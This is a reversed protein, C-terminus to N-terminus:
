ESNDVPLAAQLVKRNAYYHASCLGRALAPKECDAQSCAVKTAKPPVFTADGYKWHRAAHASCYGNAHVAKDCGDISCAGRNALRADQTHSGHKRHWAQQCASNCFKATAIKDGLPSSCEQCIRDNSDLPDHGRREQWYHKTCFGKAYEERRCAPVACGNSPEFETECRPPLDICRRLYAALMELRQPDDNAFGIAKNCGSCVLGRIAGTHHNHDVVFLKIRGNRSDRESELNGCAGCIGGQAALMAEYDETTLGYDKLAQGIYRGPHAASLAQNYARRGETTNFSHKEELVPERWFWNDPGFPKAEDHRELWHRQSPREGIAEVFVAIDMWAGCLKGHSKLWWWNRYEPHPAKRVKEAHGHDLVRRYHTDCMDGKAAWRVCDDVSCTAPMEGALEGAGVAAAYCDHCRGSRGFIPRLKQCGQCNKSPM